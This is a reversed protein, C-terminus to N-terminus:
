QQHYQQYQQQQLVLAALVQNTDDTNYSDKGATLTPSSQTLHALIEAASSTTTSRIPAAASVLTTGSSPALSLGGFGLHMFPTSASSIPQSMSGTTLSSLISDATSLNSVTSMGSISQTVPLHLQMQHPLSSLPLQALHFNSSSDTEPITSLSTQPPQYTSPKSKQLAASSTNSLGAPSSINGLVTPPSIYAGPIPTDFSVSQLMPATTRVSTPTMLQQREGLASLGHLQGGHVVALSATTAPMSIPIHLHQDPLVMSVDSSSSGSSSFSGGAATTAAATITENSRKRKIGLPPYLVGANSAVANTLLGAKALAPTSSLSGPTSGGGAVPAMGASSTSQSAAHSGAPAGHSRARSSHRTAPRTAVDSSHTTQRWSCYLSVHLREAESFGTNYSGNSGDGQLRELVYLAQDVFTSASMMMDVAAANVSSSNSHGSADADSSSSSRSIDMMIDAVDTKSAAAAAAASKSRFLVLAHSGLAHAEFPTAASELAVTTLQYVNMIQSLKKCIVHIRGLATTSVQEAASSSYLITANDHIFRWLSLNTICYMFQSSAFSLERPLDKLWDGLSSQLKNIVALVSAVTAEGEIITANPLSLCASPGFQELASLVKVTENTIVMLRLRALLITRQDTSPTSLTASAADPTNAMSSTATSNSSNGSKCYISRVIQLGSVIPTTSPQQLQSQVPLNNFDSRPLRCSIQESPFGSPRFMAVASLSEMTFLYWFCRRLSELEIEGPSDSASATQQMQQTGAITPSGPLSSHRSHAASSAAANVSTSSSVFSTTSASTPKDLASCGLDIAMRVAMGVAGSNSMIGFRRQCCWAYIVLVQLSTLCPPQQTILKPIVLELQRMYYLFTETRVQAPLQDSFLSLCCLADLLHRPVSETFEPHEISFTSLFSMISPMHVIPLHHYQHPLYQRILFSYYMHGQAKQQQQPQQQLQPQQQPQQQSPLRTLLPNPTQQINNSAISTPTSTDGGKLPEERVSHSRSRMSGSNVSFRGGGEAMPQQQQQQQQQQQLERANEMTSNNSNNSNNHVAQLAAVHMCSSYSSSSPFSSSSPIAAAAPSHPQKQAQAQTQTQTQTQTQAQSQSNQAAVRAFAPNNTNSETTSSDSVSTVASVASIVSLPLTVSRNRVGGNTATPSVSNITACDAGSESKVTTKATDASDSALSSSSSPSLFSSITGTRKRKSSSSATTYTDVQDNVNILSDDVNDLVCASASVSASASVPVSVSVPVSNAM